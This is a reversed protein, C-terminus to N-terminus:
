VSDVYSVIGLIFHIISLDFKLLKCILWFFYFFCRYHYNLNGYIFISFTRLYLIVETESCVLSIYYLKCVWKKCGIPWFFLQFLVLSNFNIKRCLVTSFVFWCFCHRYIQGHRFLLTYNTSWTRM